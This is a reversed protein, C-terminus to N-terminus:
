RNFWHHQLEGHAGLAFVEVIGNPNVGVAPDSTLNAGIAAWDSWYPFAPIQHINMLESTTSNAFIELGGSNNGVAVGGSSGNLYATVRSSENLVQWGSWGGNPATQWRHWVRNDTGRVFLELRGDGNKALTPSYFTEGDFRTWGAWTGGRTIQHNIWVANDLPSRAAIYVRGGADTEAAIKGEFFRGGLLEWGSWVAGFINFNQHWKHYVQRDAGVAFVEIRNDWNLIATPNASIGGGAQGLSSWSSWRAADRASPENQWRHWVANDRGRAFIELKQWNNKVVSVGGRFTQEGPLQEWDSCNNPVNRERQYLYWIKDDGGRAFVQLREDQNKAVIPPSTLVGGLSYWSGIPRAPRAPSLNLVVEQRAGGAVPPVAIWNNQNSLYSIGIRYSGPADGFRACLRRIRREGGPPIPRADGDGAGLLDDRNRGMPDRVYVFLENVRAPYDGFNRVVLEIELREGVRPSSDNQPRLIIGEQIGLDLYTPREPPVNAGTLFLSSWREADGGSEDSRSYVLRRAAEDIRIMMEEDPRNSDYCYVRKPNEDYGIALVQHGFPNGAQRRRLGLVTPQNTADLHSKIRSFENLSWDFQADFTVGPLTMWNIASLLGFPGYSAMQCDYIFQRLRSGVPPVINRAGFDSAQHTPIPMAHQFYRLAALAVGGCLGETELRANPFISSLDIITNVFNNAFHFGHRSPIFNTRPM